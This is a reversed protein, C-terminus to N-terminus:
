TGPTKDIYQLVATPPMLEAPPTINTDQRSKYFTRVSGERMILYWGLAQRPDISRATAYHEAAADPKGQDELFIVFEMRVYVSRSYIALAERYTAEADAIRGAKVQQKALQSYVTVTAVGHDIAKRTLQAATTHDAERIALGSHSLYAGAYEPDAKVATQFHANAVSFDETRAGIYAHYQAVIKTSCFAAMLLTAIWSALIIHRSNFTTKDDALKRQRKSLQNVAIAFLMFFVVGNQASRFSFSSVQSSVAFAAIGAFAAWLIPSSRIGDRSFKRIFYFVFLVFPLAFLTFGIVGLESLVQLPENHAREVLYDEGIEAAANENPHATRYNIRENNFAVGFNDAGVGFLANDRAMQRGVSWTFLRMTSTSRSQDATGTIYSTTSPVASFFSFFVQTGITVALWLATFLAVRKRFMKASLVFSAAFFIVFGVIGALFAGKSLSLMVTIWSLLATVLIFVMNRRNRAYIAAAFLLPAITVLLEAYKGYRIRINGEASSFERISLYDFVCLLGLIFAAIAFANIVFRLNAAPWANGTFIVFVILYISWLLTHHTVGGFSAAWLVSVASWCIFAAVSCAIMKAPASLVIVSGRQMLAFFAILFVSLLLEAKFPQNVQMTPQPVAYLIALLAFALLAPM